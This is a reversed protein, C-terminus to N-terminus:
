AKPKGAKGAKRGLRKRRKPPPEKLVRTRVNPKGTVDLEDEELQRLISKARDLVFKPLGALRAVQIGYSKDAGGAVIKRLFVVRDGWERVAINYNVAETLSTPLERSSM